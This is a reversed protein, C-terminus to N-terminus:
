QYVLLINEYEKCTEIASLLEREIITYQTQATILMQSYFAKSKRQQM